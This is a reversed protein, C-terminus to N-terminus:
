NWMYKIKLFSLELQIANILFILAENSTNETYGRYYIADLIERTEDYYRKVFQKHKLTKCDKDAYRINDVRDALKLVLEEDTMKLMKDILYKAKSESLALEIKNSTLADVYKAVQKGFKNEIEGLTINCDEVVDHLLSAIIMDEDRTLHEISRAVGKPHKFYPEGTFRRTQGEHAKQSFIYADIVRQKLM